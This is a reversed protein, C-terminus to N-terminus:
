KPNPTTADVREIDSHKDGEAPERNLADRREERPLARIADPGAGVTREEAVLHLIEPPDM